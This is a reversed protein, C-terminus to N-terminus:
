CRGTRLRKTLIIESFPSFSSHGSTHSHSLIQPPTPYAKTKYVCVCVCVCVCVYVCVCVCVCVYVCVCVCVYVCMCVCVCVCVYVRVCECVCVYVCVCVYESVRGGWGLFREVGQPYDLLNSVARIALLKLSTAM